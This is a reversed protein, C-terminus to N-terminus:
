NPPAAATPRHDVVKFGEPLDFLQSAPESLDVNTVTFAQTGFRPDSRKSLLNIGLQSAYWYERSVTLKQDNGFVGPNYVVSERTGVTDVNAILQNGLSERTVYGADNPLPGPPPGDVKFVTSTTASYNVLTCIHQGDFFCNYLTHNNPDAIQITTMRSKIKGNKPVLFWREEYIRGMSDRAIRRENVLTITGGDALARVWETQLTLTFPANALPPIVISELVERTGGDEVHVQKEVPPSQTRAHVTFPILAASLFFLTAGRM